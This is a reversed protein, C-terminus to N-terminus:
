QINDYLKEQKMGTSSQSWALKQKEEKDLTSEM